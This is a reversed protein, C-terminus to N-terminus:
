SMIAILGKLIFFNKSRNEFNEFISLQYLSQFYAHFYIQLEEDAEHTQPKGLM